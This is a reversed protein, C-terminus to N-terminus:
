GLAVTSLIQQDVTDRPFVGAGALDTAGVSGGEAAPITPANLGTGVSSQGNVNIGNLDTNGALYVPGSGAGESDGSLIVALEPHQASKFINGVVNGTAGGRLRIGYAAWNQIVNDRIDVLGATSVQPNRQSDNALVNNHLSVNTVPGYKFNAILIAKTKRAFSDPRSDGIISWSVTVDHTDETIDLNKDGPPPPGPPPVQGSNAVSCHDIVVNYSHEWVVIGNDVSDRVRIGQIKIDHSGRFSLAHGTLTIGPTPASMADITVFSKGREDLPSQLAITGAISFTISVSGPASLADRLTGPGSDALSSVVVSTGGAGGPTTTGFGALQPLPSPWAAGVGSSGGAGSSSCGVLGFGCIAVVGSLGAAGLRGGIWRPSM